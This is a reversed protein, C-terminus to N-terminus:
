TTTTTRRTTTTPAVSPDALARYLFAAMQGRTVPEKPCFLTGATDCGQTIGAEALKGIETYFTHSAPM